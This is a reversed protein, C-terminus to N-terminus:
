SELKELKDQFKKPDKLAEGIMKLTLIREDFMQKKIEELEEIVELGRQQSEDYDITLNPEAMEYYYELEERSKGPYPKGSRNVTGKFIDIIVPDLGAAILADEYVHRFRAPRFPQQKGKALKVGIAEAAKQFSVSVTKATISKGPPLMGYEHPKAARGHLKRFEAKREKLSSTFLPEDYTAGNREKNYYKLLKKTLDKNVFTNVIEGTKNRYNNLFIREFQPNHDLIIEMNQKLIDGITMGTCLLMELILQNRINLRSKFDKIAERNLVKKKISRGKVKTETIRFMPYNADVKEVEAPQPMPPKIKGLVVNNHTYFGRITGYAATIAPNHGLTRVTRLYNFFGRLRKRVIENDSIAEEIIQDPNQQCFDMYYPMLTCCREWTKIPFDGKKSNVEISDKWKKATAFDQWQYKGLFQLRLPNL